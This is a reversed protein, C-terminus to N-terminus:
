QDKGFAQAVHQLSLASQPALMKAVYKGLIDAEVNLQAGIPKRRLTTRAATEPILMVSFGNATAATLTLSVGDLCVSGKEVFFPSLAPPLSLRMVWAGGEDFAAELTVVADVHGQVWHGGLRAGVKLAKELNLATGVTWNGVTSRRLTEPAAEVLFASGQLQVATLCVGDCAISEGKVFDTAVTPADIWLQTVSGPVIRAVTGISEILGTFM